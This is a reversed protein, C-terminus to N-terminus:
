RVSYDKWRDRGFSNAEYLTSLNNMIRRTTVIM